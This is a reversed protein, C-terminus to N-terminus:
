VRVLPRLRALTAPGIGSVRDLDDVSKFLGNRERDAVIRAALVPGIGPLEELEAASATNINVPGAPAAAPPQSRVPAPTPPVVVPAVVPTATPSGADQALLAPTSTADPLATPEPPAPVDAATATPATAETPTAPPAPTSPATPTPGAAATQGGPVSQAVSPQATATPAARPVHVHMEDRLLLARSPTAPEAAETAGGAQQLLDAVRSGPALQYLGPRAVEGSVAVTITTPAPTVYIIEIPEGGGPRTTLVVAGAIATAVLVGSLFPPVWAPM